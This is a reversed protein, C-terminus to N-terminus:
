TFKMIRKRGLIRPLVAILFQLFLNYICTMWYIIVQRLNSDFM